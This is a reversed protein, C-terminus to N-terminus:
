DPTVIYVAYLIFNETIAHVTIPLNLNIKAGYLMTSIDCAHKISNYHMHSLKRIEQKDNNHLQSGIKFYMLSCYSLYKISSVLM